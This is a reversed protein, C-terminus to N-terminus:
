LSCNKRKASSVVRREYVPSRSTASHSLLITNYKIKVLFLNLLNTGFHIIKTFKIPATRKIM